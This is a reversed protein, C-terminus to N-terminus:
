SHIYTIFHQGERKVEDQSSYTSEEFGLIDATDKTGGEVLEM